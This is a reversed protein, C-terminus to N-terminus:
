GRYRTGPEGKALSLGYLKAVASVDAAAWCKQEKASILRWDRRRGKAGIMALLGPHFQLRGERHPGFGTRLHM